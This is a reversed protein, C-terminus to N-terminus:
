QDDKRGHGFRIQRRKCEGINGLEVIPGALGAIDALLKQLQFVLDIAAVVDMHNAIRFITKAQLVEQVFRADHGPHTVLVLNRVFDFRVDQM